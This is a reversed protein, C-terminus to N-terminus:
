IQKWPYTHFSIQWLHCCFIKFLNHKTVVSALIWPMNSDVGFWVFVRLSV